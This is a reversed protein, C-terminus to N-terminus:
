YKQCNSFILVNQKVYFFSVFFNVGSIYISSKCKVTIPFIISSFSILKLCCIYHIKALFVFSIMQLVLIASVLCIKSSLFLKALCNNCGMFFSPTTSIHNISSKM